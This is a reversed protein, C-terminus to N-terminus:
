RNFFKGILSLFLSEKDQCHIIDIKKERIISMYRYIFNINKSSRERNLYIIEINDRKEIMNIM